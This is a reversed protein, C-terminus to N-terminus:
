KMCETKKRSDTRKKKTKEDKRRRQGLMDTVSYFLTESREGHKIESKGDTATASSNMMHAIHGRREDTPNSNRILLSEEPGEPKM